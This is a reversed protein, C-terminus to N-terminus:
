IGCSYGQGCLGSEAFIHQVGKLGAWVARLVTKGNSSPNPQGLGEGMCPESQVCVSACGSKVGTSKM